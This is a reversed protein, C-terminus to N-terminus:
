RRKESHFSLKNLLQPWSSFTIDPVVKGSCNHLYTCQSDGTFLATKMGAEQAPAIETSLDNGIFVTQRPLIHYEYLTDYLRRFLLRDAKAANYEYSFFTLDPEFLETFDDFKGKSQDRIMLTLDIPTYFQANSLIGATINNKKLGVVTDVVGPYLRRGLVFFNYFWAAKRSFDRENEGESLPPAYGRRMLLLIVTEWIKEVAIHPFLVGKEAAREHYLAVIGHYFDHLTKEPAENPNAAILTDTMRFREAVCKFVRMFAAEKREPVSFDEKWYDILTGYVDCIIARVDYLRTEKSPYDVPELRREEAAGGSEHIKRAFEALDSM